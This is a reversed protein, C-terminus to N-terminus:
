KEQEVSGAIRSGCCVVGLNWDKMWTPDPLSGTIVGSIAACAPPPGAPSCPAPDFVRCAAVPPSTSSRPSCTHWFCIIKFDKGKWEHGRQAALTPSINAGHICVRMSLASHLVVSMARKMKSTDYADSPTSLLWTLFKHQEANPLTRKKQRTSRRPPRDLRWCWWGYPAFKHM